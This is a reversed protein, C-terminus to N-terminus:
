LEDEPKGSHGVMKEKAAEYNSALTEKASDLSEGAKTEAKEKAQHLQEGAEMAKQEAESASKEAVEMVRGAADKAKGAEDKAVERTEQGAKDTTGEATEKGERVKEKLENAKESTMEHTKDKATKALDSIKNPSATEEEEERQKFGLGESIREKAWSTWSGEGARDAEGTDEEIVGGDKSTASVATVPLVVVLLVVLLGMALGRVNRTITAM